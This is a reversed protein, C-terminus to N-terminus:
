INFFSCFFSNRIQLAVNFIGISIKLSLQFFLSLFHPCVTLGHGHSEVSHYFALHYQFIANAGLERGELELCHIFTCHRAPCSQSGCAPCPFSKVGPHFSPYSLSFFALPPQSHHHIPTIAVQPQSSLM